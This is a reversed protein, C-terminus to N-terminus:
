ARSRLLPPVSLLVSLLESQRQTGTKALLSRLQTRATAISIGSGASYSNVTVGNLLASALRNEADSLGFLDRLQEISPVAHRGKERIILLNGSRRDVVSLAKEANEAFWPEFHVFVEREASCRGLVGENPKQLSLKFTRGRNKEIALRMPCNIKLGMRGTQPSPQLQEALWNRALANSAGLEGDKRLFAIGIPLTDLIRQLFDGQWYRSLVGAWARSIQEFAKGEGALGSARSLLERVLDPPCEQCVLSRKTLIDRGSFPTDLWRSLRWGSACASGEVSILSVLLEEVGADIESVFSVFDDATLQCPMAVFGDAYLLDKFSQRDSLADLVEAPALGCVQSLAYLLGLERRTAVSRTTLSPLSEFVSWYRIWDANKKLELVLSSTATLVSLGCRSDKARILNKPIM